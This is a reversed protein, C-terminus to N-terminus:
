SDSIKDPGPGFKRFHYYTDIHTIIYFHPLFVYVKFQITLGRYLPSYAYAVGGLAASFAGWKVAGQVAGRAAEWQADELEKSDLAGM